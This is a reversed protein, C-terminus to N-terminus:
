KKPELQELQAQTIEGGFFLYQAHSMGQERRLREELETLARLKIAGKNNPDGGAAPQSRLHPPVFPEPKAPDGAPKTNPVTEKISITGGTSLFKGKALYYASIATNYNLPNANQLLEIFIDEFKELDPFQKKIQGAIGSIQNQRAMGMTFNMLPEIQAQVIKAISGARDQEFEDNSPLTFPAPAPKTASQLVNSLAGLQQLIQENTRKLAAIEDSQSPGNGNPNNPDPNNPNDGSPSDPFYLIQRM